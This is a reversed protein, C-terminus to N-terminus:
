IIKTYRERDSRGVYEATDLALKKRKEFEDVLPFNKGNESKEDEDLVAKLSSRFFSTLVQSNLSLIVESCFDEVKGYKKSKM